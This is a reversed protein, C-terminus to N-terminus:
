PKGGSAILDKHVRYSFSGSCGPAVCRPDNSLALTFVKKQRKIVISMERLNDTVCSPRVLHQVSISSFNTSMKILQEINDKFPELLGSPGCLTWITAAWQRELTDILLFQHLQYLIGSIRSIDVLLSRLTSDRGINIADNLCRVAEFTLKLVSDLKEISTSNM